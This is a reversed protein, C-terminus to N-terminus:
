SAKKVVARSSFTLKSGFAQEFMDAKQEAAQIERDCPQESRLQLHVVRGDLTIRLERVRGDYRRDLADAVRVIAGLRWVTERDTENLSAYDFHREKPMAGRHYRAVNAIVNREAESFGTLESNKILYLAHKHHSEHAIHYGADHLLAAASLLTRQHRTMGYSEALSDFLKEALRTVQQAHAEEYGFRRGVAYVGRLKQDALDSVPPRAEAEMERLREIIVGERLAYDCTRLLNVGLSRMAGELIQGGAVIIEARQSSIGHM